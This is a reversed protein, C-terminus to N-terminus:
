NVQSTLRSGALAASVERRRFPADSETAKRVARWDIRGFSEPDSGGLNLRHEPLFRRDEPWLIRRGKADGGNECSFLLWHPRRAADAGWSRADLVFFFSYGTGEARARFDKVEATPAVVNATPVSHGAQSFHLTQPWATACRNFTRLTVAAKTPSFGEVKLNGNAQRYLAFRFGERTEVTEDLRVSPSRREHESLPYSGGASLIDAIRDIESLAAELQRLRWELKAAHFQHAEAESHFGLRSDERVLPLMEGTVAKERRVIERMGAVAALAKEANGEDRSATVAILRLRYFEFIDAGSAFLLKLAKIVGLDRLRECDGVYKKELAAVADRGDAGKLEAGVRMRDALIAAEDLTHNELCEGIADGSPADQPKWTRGLRRMEIGPLLPWAVGAHFPGYYQMDNSLPYNAYADSLDKWLKAVVAADAGWEPKALKLLFEDESCSFDSFALEGAAKNMVGPCNGFYWCQMVTSCRAKRMAAYKRYLLGPVPVFPVTACEHSCGVQIKAGLLGGAERSAEAVQEFAPSPGVYSLWYDGGPRYRGLQNKVAGSESNYLMTVGDPLHSATEAVWPARDFEVYPQYFWSLFEAKPNVARLGKMVAEATLRHIQWPSLKACLACPGRRGDVASISSLCTTPREGHSINLVGPLGPVQEFLDRFAEELYQRAVPHAPCLVQGSGWPAPSLAAAPFKALLPDGAEMRRPEICFIWTRIGYRRCKEVTRRLKALRQPADKDRENFSTKVLNRLEVTLWLGNIGEHALRNLYADPYYDVDDMLEDRNFPPRKIPGFFCRSIRNRLWPKRTESKLDGSMVRDEFYCAGRRIGDDDEATLVVDGGSGVEIRYSEQGDVPGKRLTLSKQAARGASALFRELDERVTATEGSLGYEDVLLYAESARYVCPEALEAKFTWDAPTPAAPVPGVTEYCTGVDCAVALLLGLVTM